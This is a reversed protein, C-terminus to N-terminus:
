LNALVTFHVTATGVLPPTIATGVVAHLTFTFHTDVNGTAIYSNLNITNNVPLSLSTGSNPPVTFSTVITTISGPTADSTFNLYASTINNFDNGPTTAGSTLTLDVTDIKISTISSASLSTNTAAVLSDLNVTYNFSTSDSGQAAVPITFTIGSASLPINVGPLAIKGCASFVTAFGAIVLLGLLTQRFRKM